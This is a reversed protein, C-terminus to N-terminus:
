REPPPQRIDATGELGFTVAGSPPYAPAATAFPFSPLPGLTPEPAWDGFGAARGAVSGGVIGAMLGICALFVAGFFRAGRGVVMALLGVVLSVVGVGLGILFVIGGMTPGAVIGPGVAVFLPPGSAGILVGAMTCTGAAVIVAEPTRGNSVTGPRTGEGM